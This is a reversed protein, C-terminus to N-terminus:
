FKVEVGFNPLLSFGEEEELKPNGGEQYPRDYYWKEYVSKSKIINIAEVYWSIHGWSHKIKYTYRLDLSYSPPYHASNREGTYPIYRHEGPFLSAYILDEEPEDEDGSSERYPTYPFSSYYQFRGSFTHNEIKYGAILKFNHIQEFGSKTWM